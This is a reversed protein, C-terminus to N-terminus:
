AHSEKNDLYKTPIAYYVLDFGNYEYVRLFLNYDLDWSDILDSITWLDDHKHYASIALIPTYKKITKEAGLLAQIEAGEIDMKIFNVPRNLIVEDIAVAQIVTEGDESIHSSSGTGGNFRLQTSENWVGCPFIMGEAKIKMQLNRNLKAINDIDPEFAAFFDIPLNKNVIKLLTDGDYAGCDVFSLSPYLLPIDEPFYQVCVNQPKPSLDLRKKMRYFLIDAFLRKSYDDSLREYSHQLEKTHRRYSNHDGLWFYEGIEDYFLHHFEIPNIVKEFGLDYISCEINHLNAYANFIGLICNANKAIKEVLDNTPSIVPVTGIRDITKYKHKDIFCRIKYGHKHLIDACMRGFDGAGYIVLESDRALPEKYYDLNLIDNINM